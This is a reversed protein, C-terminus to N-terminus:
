EKHNAEFVARAFGKPTQSRYAKTKESSGGVKSYWASPQGKRVGEPEVRRPEPMVFGNGTWLCTNKTYAEKSPDDLYGAYDCPNFKYDPKRWYTSLTSVPNEIFYPAGTVEECLHRTAEVLSLAAILRGMGKRKFHKAGSVALDTCPPFAAIFDAKAVIDVLRSHKVDLIDINITHMLGGSPHFTTNSSHEHKLDMAYCSYGAEFWPQAMVTSFDFLSVMIKPM